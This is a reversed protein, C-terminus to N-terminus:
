IRFMEEIDSFDFLSDKEEDEKSPLPPFPELNSSPEVNRTVYIMNGNNIVEKLMRNEEELEAMRRENHTESVHNEDPIWRYTTVIVCSGDNRSMRYYYPTKRFTIIGDTTIYDPVDTQNPYTYNPLCIFTDGQINDPIEIYDYNM